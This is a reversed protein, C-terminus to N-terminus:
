IEPALVQIGASPLVAVKARAPLKEAFLAILKELDRFLLAGPHKKYFDDVLFHESWVHLQDQTGLQPTPLEPNQGKRERRFSASM